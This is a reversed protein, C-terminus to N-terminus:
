FRAMMPQRASSPGVNFASKTAEHNKQPDPFTKSLFGITEHNELPTRVGTGGEQDTCSLDMGANKRRNIRTCSLLGTTIVKTIKLTLIITSGKHVYFISLSIDPQYNTRIVNSRFDYRSPSHFSRLVMCDFSRISLVNLHAFKGPLSTYILIRETMNDTIAM